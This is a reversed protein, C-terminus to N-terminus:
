LGHGVFEVVPGTADESSALWISDEQAVSWRFQKWRSLVPADDSFAQSGARVNLQGLEPKDAEAAM